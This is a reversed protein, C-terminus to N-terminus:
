ASYDLLSGPHLATKPATAPDAQYQWVWDNAFTFTDREFVCPRAAFDPSSTM